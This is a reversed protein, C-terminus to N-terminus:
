NPYKKLHTIVDSDNKSIEILKDKYGKGYSRKIATKNTIDTNIYTDYFVQGQTKIEYKSKGYKIIEPKSYRDTISDKEFPKEKGMEILLWHYLAYYKEPYPKKYKNEEAGKESQQPESTQTKLFELIYYCSEQTKYYDGTPFIQSEIEKEEDYPLGNLKYEATDYLFQYYDIENKLQFNDLKHKNFENKYDEVGSSELYNFVDFNLISKYSTNQFYDEIETLSQIKIRKM